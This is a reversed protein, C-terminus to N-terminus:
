LPVVRATGQEVTTTWDMRVQKWGSGDGGTGLICGTKGKELKEPHTKRKKATKQALSEYQKQASQRM